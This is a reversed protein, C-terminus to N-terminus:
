GGFRAAYVEDRVNGAERTAPLSDCRVDVIMPGKGTEENHSLLGFVVSPDEVPSALFATDFSVISSINSCFGYTTMVIQARCAEALAEGLVGHVAFDFSVDHGDLECGIRRLHDVSDSCVMVRRGAGVARLLQGVIRGNYVTSSSLLKSIHELSLFAPNVRGVPPTWSMEFRSVAVAAVPDVSDLFVVPPGLHFSFIKAAGVDHQFGPSGFGLMKSPKLMLMSRSWLGPDIRELGLSVVMGFAEVGLEASSLGQAIDAVCAVTVHADKEDVEGYKLSGVIVEPMYRAVSDRCVKEMSLDPIVLLTRLQVSRILLSLIKFTLGQDRVLAFAQTAKDHYLQKLLSECAERFEGSESQEILADSADDSVVERLPPWPLGYTVELSKATSGRFFGRPVGVEGDRDSYIRYLVPEGDKTASITLKRRIKEAWLRDSATVWVWSEANEM